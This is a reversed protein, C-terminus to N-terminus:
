ILSLAGAAALAAVFARVLLRQFIPIRELVVARGDLEAAAGAAAVPDPRLLFRWVATFHGVLAYCLVVAFSPPWELIADMTSPARYRRSFARNAAYAIAGGAGLVAFWFIIALVDAYFRRACAALADAPPLADGSRSTAFANGDFPTRTAAFGEDGWESLLYRAQEADNSYLAQLLRGSFYRFRETQLCSALVVVQLALAIPPAANSLAIDLIFVVAAPAAVVAIWLANAGLGYEELSEIARLFQRQLRSAGRPDRFSNIFVALLLAFFRM